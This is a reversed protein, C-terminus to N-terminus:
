HKRIIKEELGRTGEQVESEGEGQVLNRPIYLLVGFKKCIEKGLVDEPKVKVYNLDILHLDNGRFALTLFWAYPLVYKPKHSRVVSWM